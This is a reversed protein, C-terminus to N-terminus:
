GPTHKVVIEFDGSQDHAEGHFSADIWTASGNHLEVPFAVGQTAGSQYFEIFRAYFADRAYATPFRHGTDTYVKAEDPSGFTDV